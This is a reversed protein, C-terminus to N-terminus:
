TQNGFHYFSLTSVLTFFGVDNKDKGIVKNVIQSEQQSRTEMKEGYRFPQPVKHNQSSYLGNLPKLISHLSYIAMIMLLLMDAEKRDKLITFCSAVLKEEGLSGIVM